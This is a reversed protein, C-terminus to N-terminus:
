GLNVSPCIKALPCQECLPKRAKCIKRGHHILLTSIRERNNGKYLNMLDREIRIPDSYESLGLRQSLRKVHTDVVVGENVNFATSLVVNATKRAVGPIQLLEEMTTPIQGSYIETIKIAAAKIYKAKQRFFGTPRIMQELDTLDAKAFDSVSRYRMFLPPTVKNVREDTCQASLITAVLLQWPDQHILACKASPYTDLLIKLIQDSHKDQM